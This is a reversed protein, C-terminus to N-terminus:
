IEVGYKRVEAIFPTAVLNYDLLSIPHPEIRNDLKWKLFNLKSIDAIEDAGFETSVIGVDIDSDARETGKAYSGFVFIKSVPIGKNELIDKYDSVIKKIEAGVM